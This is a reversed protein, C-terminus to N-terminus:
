DIKFLFFTKEIIFGSISDFIKVVLWLRTLFYLGLSTLHTLNEFSNESSFKKFFNSVLNVLALFNREITNDKTDKALLCGM